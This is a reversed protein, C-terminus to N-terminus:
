AILTIEDSHILVIQKLRVLEAIIDDYDWDETNTQDKYYAIIKNVEQQLYDKCCNSQILYSYSTENNDKLKLISLKM